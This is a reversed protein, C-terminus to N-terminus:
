RTNRKQSSRYKFRFIFNFVLFFATLFVSAKFVHNIALYFGSEARIVYFFLLPIWFFVVPYKKSVKMIVFFCINYFMGLIFMFVIGYKFGYNAYAEGIIGLDMSTGPNLILGTFRHFYEHGGVKLKNPKLFRPVLADEISRNITEGNAFPEYAPVHAMVRAIIWGQNLRTIMLYFEWESFLKNGIFRDFLLDKFKSVARTSGIDKEDDSWIVSRFNAKVLQIAFVGLFAFFLTLLKTKYSFQEIFAVVIFIFIGWMLFDHFMARKAGEIFLALVIAFSIIYKNKRESLLVYFMGIYTLMSLLFFVFLLGPPMLSTVYWAILGIGVIIVDMNPYISLQQKVYDELRNRDTRYKYFPLYLGIIYSALALVAYNMYQNEPVVMCYVFYDPVYIYSLIPGIVWQLCAILIIVERIEIKKGLNVIFQFSFFVFIGVGVSALLEHGFFLYLIVAIFFSCIYKLNNFLKDTM